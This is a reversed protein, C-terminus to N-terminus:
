LTWFIASIGIAVMGRDDMNVKKIWSDFLYTVNGPIDFMNFACKM